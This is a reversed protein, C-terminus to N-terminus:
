GARTEFINLFAEMLVGVPTVADGELLVGCELNAERSRHLFNASGVYGAIADALVTKAHFTEIDPPGKPREHRFSDAYDEYNKEDWNSQGNIQRCCDLALAKAVVWYSSMAFVLETTFKTALVFNERRGQLLSGLLSQGFQYIDATDIFNGGAEAYAEFIAKSM